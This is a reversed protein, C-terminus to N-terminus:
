DLPVCSRNVSIKSKLQCSSTAPVAKPLSGEKWQAGQLPVRPDEAPTDRPVRPSTISGYWQSVPDASHTNPSALLFGPGHIFLLQGRAFGFDLAAAGQGGQELHQHVVIIVGGHLKDDLHQLLHEALRRDLRVPDHEIDMKAPDPHAAGIGSFDRFRLYGADMKQRLFRAIGKFAAQFLCLSLLYHETLFNLDGKRQRHPFGLAPLVFIEGGLM